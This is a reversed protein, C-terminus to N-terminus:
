DEIINLKLEVGFDILGDEKECINIVRDYGRSDYESLSYDNNKVIRILKNETMSNRSSPQLVVGCKEFSVISKFGGGMGKAALEKYQNAEFGNTYKIGNLTLSENIFLEVQNNDLKCMKISAKYDDPNKYNIFPHKLEQNVLTVDIKDDLSNEPCNKLKVIQKYTAKTSVGELTVKTVGDLIVKDQKTTCGILGISVTLVAGIKLINKLM